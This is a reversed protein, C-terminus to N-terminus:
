RKYTYQFKGKKKNDFVTKKGKKNDYKINGKYTKKKDLYKQVASKFM